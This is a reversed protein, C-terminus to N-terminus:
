KMIRLDWYTDMNHKINQEYNLQASNVSLKIIYFIPAVEWFVMSAIGVGTELGDEVNPNKRFNNASNLTSIFGLVNGGWRFFKSSNKANLMSKEFSWGKQVADGPWFNGSPARWYGKRLFSSSTYKLGGMSSLGTGIYGFYSAGNSAIDSESIFGDLEDIGRFFDELPIFTSATYIPSILNQSYINGQKGNGISKNKIETSYYYSYDYWMGREHLYNKGASFKGQLDKMEGWTINIGNTSSLSSINDWNDGLFQYFRWNSTM